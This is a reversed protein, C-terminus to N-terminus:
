EGGGRRRIEDERERCSIQWILSLGKMLEDTLFM